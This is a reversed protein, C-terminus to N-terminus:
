LLACHSIGTPLVSLTAAPVADMIEVSLTLHSAESPDSWYGIYHTTLAAFVLVFAVAAALIM